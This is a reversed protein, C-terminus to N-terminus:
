DRPSGDKQAAAGNDTCAAACANPDYLCYYFSAAVAAVENIGSLGARDLCRRGCAPINTLDRPILQRWCDTETM